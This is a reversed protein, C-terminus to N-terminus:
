CQRPWPSPGALSLCRSELRAMRCDPLSRMALSGTRGSFPSCGALFEKNPMWIGKTANKWRGNSMHIFTTQLVWRDPSRSSSRQSKPPPAWRDDFVFATLKGSPNLAFRWSSPDRHTAAFLVQVSAPTVVFGRTNTWSEFYWEMCVISQDRRQTPFVRIGRKEPGALGNASVRIHSRYGSVRGRHTRLISLEVGHPKAELSAVYPLDGVQFTEVVKSVPEISLAAALVGCCIM